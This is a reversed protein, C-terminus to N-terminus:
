LFGSKGVNKELATCAFPGCNVVWLFLFYFISNGNEQLIPHTCLESALIPESELRRM